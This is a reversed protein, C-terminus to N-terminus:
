TLLLINVFWQIWTVPITLLLINVFWQIWTAPITLLLTNVFWQIWTLMTHTVPDFRPRTVCLGHQSVHSQTLLYECSATIMCCDRPLLNSHTLVSKCSEVTMHCYTQIPWCPSAHSLLWTATHKFPDVRVRMVWCDHGQPHSQMLVYEYTVTVVSRHNLSPWLLWTEIPTDPDVSMVCYNYKSLPTPTLLCSVLTMNRYPHRPWCVHCLLRTKIFIVSDVSMVCYDHKSLSSPTLLCSVITTNRYLHRPWCVHCLLRTEISIVPDHKPLSSTTLLCSVITTNQYLHRPWCIHCLLRTETSIVPDVSM